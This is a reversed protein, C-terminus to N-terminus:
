VPLPKLGEGREPDRCTMMIHRIAEIIEGALIRTDIEALEEDTLSDM